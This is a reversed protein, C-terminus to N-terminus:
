SDTNRDSRGPPGRKSRYRNSDRRGLSMVLHRLLRGAAPLAAMFILECGGDTHHEELTTAWHYRARRLRGFLARSPEYTMYGVPVSNGSSSQLTASWVFAPTLTGQSAWRSTQRSRISRECAKLSVSGLRGAYRVTIRVDSILVGRTMYGPIGIMWTVGWVLLRLPVCHGAAVRLTM